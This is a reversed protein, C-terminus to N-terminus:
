MHALVVQQEQHQLGQQISNAVLLIRESVDFRYTVGKALSITQQSTGDIVYKGGSVTVTIFGVAPEGDSPVKQAFTALNRSITM